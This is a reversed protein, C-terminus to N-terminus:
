TLPWNYVHPCAGMGGNPFISIPSRAGPPKNAKPAAARVVQALIHERAFENAAEHASSGPKVNRDIPYRGGCSRTYFFCKGAFTKASFHRGSVIVFSLNGACAPCSAKSKLLQAGFPEEQVSKRIIIAFGPPHTLTQCGRERSNYYSTFRILFICKALFAAGLASTKTAKKTMLFFLPSLM